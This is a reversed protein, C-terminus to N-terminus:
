VMLFNMLIKHYFFTSNGCAMVALPKLLKMLSNDGTGKDGSARENFFMQKAFEYKINEVSLNVLDVSYNKKNTITKLLDGQSLFKEDTDRFTLLNNYVTVPITKNILLDNVRNSDLDKLLKLQNTREPNTIESLSSM